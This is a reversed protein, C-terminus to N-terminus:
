LLISLYGVRNKALINGEDRILISLESLIANVVAENNSFEDDSIMSIAIFACSFRVFVGVVKTV